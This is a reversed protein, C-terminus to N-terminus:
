RILISTGKEYVPLKTVPHIYSLQWVYTGTEAQQGKYWGDWGDTPVRTSFILQGFRNYGRKATTPTRASPYQPLAIVLLVASQELLM